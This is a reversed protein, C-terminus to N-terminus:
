PALRQHDIARVTHSHLGLLRAVHAVPSLGTLAEVWRVMAVTLARRGSPWPIQERSPGVLGPLAAM